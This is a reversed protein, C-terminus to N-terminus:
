CVFCCNGMFVVSLVILIIDNYTYVVAVYTTGILRCCWMGVARYFQDTRIYVEDCSAACYACLDHVFKTPSHAKAQIHM